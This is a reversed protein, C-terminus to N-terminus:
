HSGLTQEILKLFKHSENEWNFAELGLKLSAERADQLKKKDSHYGSLLTVLTQPDTKQYSGGVQPYKDLFWKQALTDSAIIALGAQLYTFIKNSLALNNNLCFGPESALGLDFQAAFGILEDPPIPKYFFANKIGLLENDIFEMKNDDLINGLLHLEFDEDKLSKLAKAIARIGRCPGITQSFWFLKLPEENNIAPQKPQDKASFVNLLTFPDVGPYLQRYAGAIQPSSATVYNVRCLYKDELHKALKYHDTGPDDSIEQRHFDEADFGSKAHYKEAAKIVAPLAGLNHAIYLTARHKKAERILFYSGRAIALEPYYSILGLQQTILKATKHMLRSFFYTTKKHVPDGGVCIAKWQRTKILQEDLQTGWDNWYTYLVTVAYGACTLTDAEKVLRPNLSPQGSTVLLIKKSTAIAM